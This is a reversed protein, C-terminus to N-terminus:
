VEDLYYAKVVDKVSETNEVYIKIRQGNVM